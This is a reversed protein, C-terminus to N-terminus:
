PTGSVVMTEPQLNSRNARKTSGLQATSVTTGTKKLYALLQKQDSTLSLEVNVALNKTTQQVADTTGETAVRALENQQQTLTILSASDNNKGLFLSSLLIIFVIIALGGGVIFMINNKIPKNSNFPVLKRKQPTTNLFFDYSGQPPQSVPPM